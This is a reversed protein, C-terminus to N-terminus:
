DEDLEEMTMIEKCDGCMINKNAAAKVKLKCKPCEYEFTKKVRPKKEEKATVHYFYEFAKEDPKVVEDIFLSFEESPSTFGWGYKKTRECVLGVSDALQKFKKNHVQGNCDKVDAIKNAYHVMEHHLTEVIENVPRNLNLSNINIEYKALKEDSIDKTHKWVKDLTFHGLNNARSKQITIVPEPLKNEYYKENLINFIRYLENLANGIINM